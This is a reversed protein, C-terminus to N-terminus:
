RSLLERYVKRVRAELVKRHDIGGFFAQQSELLQRRKRLLKEFEGPEHVVWEDAISLEPYRTDLTELKAKAEPQFLVPVRAGLLEYFRCAPSEYYKTDDQLYLGLAYHRLEPEIPRALPSVLQVNPFDKVWNPHSREPCAVTVHESGRGTFYRQFTKERRPRRAGYYLVRKEADREWNFKPDFREPHHAVANWNVYRSTPTSAVVKPVTSWYSFEMGKNMGARVGALLESSGISHPRPFQVLCDNMVWVFKKCKSIVEGIEKRARCFQGLGNVVIVIEPQADLVDEPKYLAPIKLTNAIFTAISPNILTSTETIPTLNIVAAKERM